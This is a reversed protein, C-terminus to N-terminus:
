SATRNVVAGLWRQFRSGGHTRAEKRAPSKHQSSASKLNFEHQMKNLMDSATYPIM